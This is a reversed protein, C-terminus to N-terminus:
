IFSSDDWVAMLWIFHQITNGWSKETKQKPCHVLSWCFAHYGSIAETWSDESNEKSDNWMYKILMHLSKKHMSMYSFRFNCQHGIQVWVMVRVMQVFLATYSKKEEAQLVFYKLRWTTLNHAPAVKDSTLCSPSVARALLEPWEAVGQHAYLQPAIGGTARKGLCPLKESGERTFCIDGGVGDKFAKGEFDPSGQMSGHRRSDRGWIPGVKHNQM